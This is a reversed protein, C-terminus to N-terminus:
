IVCSERHARLPQAPRVPPASSVPVRDSQCEIVPRRGVCLADQVCQCLVIETGCKEHDPAFNFAKWADRLAHQFFTMLYTIM